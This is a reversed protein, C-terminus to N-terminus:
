SSVDHDDTFPQLNLSGQVRREHRKLLSPDKDHRVQQLVPDQNILKMRLFVGHKQKKRCAHPHTPVQEICSEWPKGKM